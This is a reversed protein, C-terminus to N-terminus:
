GGRGGGRGREWTKKQEKIGVRNNVLLIEEEEEKKERKKRKDATIIIFFGSLNCPSVSGFTFKSGRRHM